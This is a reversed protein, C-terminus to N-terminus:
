VLLIWGLACRRCLGLLATVVRVGCVCRAVCPRLWMGVSDHRMLNTASSYGIETHAATYAIVRKIYVQLGNVGFGGVALMRQGGMLEDWSQEVAAPEQKTAATAASSGASSSSTAATSTPASTSTSTSHMRARAVSENV